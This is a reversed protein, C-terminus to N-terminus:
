RAVVGQLVPEIPGLHATFDRLTAIAGDPDGDFEASVAIFAAERRAGTLAAKAQLLKTTMASAAFQDAVWYVSFVMRKGRATSIRTVAVPVTQRDLAVVATSRASIEGNADDALTNAASILKKDDTQRLYYAIFLDAHRVGDSFSRQVTLDAGPFRPRWDDDEASASWPAAVDPLVLKGPTGSPARDLYAAYARPLAVLCLAIAAVAIFQRTSAVAVSPKSSRDRVPGQDRFRWGVLLLGAMVIAFFLWGYLIHDVGSAVSRDTVYALLIIGYARLGNAIIPTIACLAIFCARRLLSRYAFDAFLFGLAIMAILFRLGACAEAVYFNSNPISILFGDSYVPINSLRLSNVVFWATFDQLYPILFDGSPALFFLYLLPFCLVRYVRKGLVSLLIAQVGFLLALQQGEAIGVIKAILWFTGAPVLLLLALPYPLPALGALRHRREYILYCVIPLILFGHNYARSDSWVAVADSVARWYLALFVGLLVALTAVAIRWPRADLNTACLPAFEVAIAPDPVMPQSKRMDKPSTEAREGAVMILTRAALYRM